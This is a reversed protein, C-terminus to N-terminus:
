LNIKELKKEKLTVLIRYELVFNTKLIKYLNFCYFSYEKRYTNVNWEQQEERINILLLLYKKEFATKFFYYDNSFRFGLLEGPPENLKIIDGINLTM